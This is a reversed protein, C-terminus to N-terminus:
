ISARRFISLGGFAPDYGSAEPPLSEHGGIALYGGPRLRRDIEAFVAARVNPLFYTFALNRCLILDFPGSPWEDRIDQLAFTIGDRYDPRVCFLDGRPEFAAERWEAPLEKLSGAAYCGARARSLMVPDADTATIAISLAPQRSQAGMSWGIRLSYPEEGSACGASWCRVTAAGAARAEDALTPLVDRALADYVARDRYFRSIPIRCMGDLRAREEPDTEILAKYASLDWIGLERMRRDVRKCVTGRVKRFGAWRLGLGPLCDQLFDVCERDRM